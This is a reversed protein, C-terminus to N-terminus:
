VVKSGTAMDYVSIGAALYREWGDIEASVAGLQAHEDDTVVCCQACEIIAELDPSPGLSAAILAAKKNIHDRQIPLGSQNIVKASRYRGMFSGQTNGTAFAIEWVVHVLMRKKIPEEIPLTRITDLLIKIDALRQKEAPLSVYSKRHNANSTFSM